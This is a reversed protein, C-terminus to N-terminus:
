RRRGRSALEHGQLGPHLIDSIILNIENRNKIENKIYNWALDGNHFEKADFSYFLGGIYQNIVTERFLAHDELYVIHAPRSLPFSDENPSLQNPLADSKNNPM